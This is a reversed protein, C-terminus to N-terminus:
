LPGRRRLGALFVDLGFEVGARPKGDHFLDAQAIGIVGHLFGWLAVAAPASDREGAVPRLTEVVVSWLDDSATHQEDPYRRKIMVVRYLEPNGEAFAVYAHAMARVADAGSRDVIAERLVRLLGRTGEDAVAALLADRDAYYRYLANPALDLAAAVARLSLGEVGSRALHALAVALIAERSTKLPYPMKSPLTCRSAPSPLPTCQGGYLHVTNMKTSPPLQGSHRLRACVRGYSLLTAPSTGSVGAAHAAHAVHIAWIAM